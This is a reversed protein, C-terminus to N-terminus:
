RYKQENEARENILSEIDKLERLTDSLSQLRRAIEALVDRVTLHLITSYPGGVGIPMQLHATRRDNFATACKLLDKLSMDKISAITNM